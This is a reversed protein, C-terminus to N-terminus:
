RLTVAWDSSSRRSFFSDSSSSIEFSSDLCCSSSRSSSLTTSKVNWIMFTSRTDIRSSSSPDPSSTGRTDFPRVACAPAAFCTGCDMARLATSSRTAIRDSLAAASSRKLPLDIRMWLTRLAIHVGRIPM